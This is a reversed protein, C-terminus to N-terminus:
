GIISLSIQWLMTMDVAVKVIDHDIVPCVCSFSADIQKHRHSKWVPKVPEYVLEQELDWTEKNEEMEM